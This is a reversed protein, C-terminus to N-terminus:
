TKVKVPWKLITLTFQYFYARPKTLIYVSGRQCLTPQFGCKVLAKRCHDEWYLGALPHGYLALKLKVVPNYYKEWGSNKPWQEKPLSVWTDDGQLTAQTYASVADSDQGAMGPLRGIADLWKGSTHHNAGTGQDSFLAMQNSETRVHNGQFM